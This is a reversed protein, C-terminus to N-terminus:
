AASSSRPRISAPPSRFRPPRCPRRPSTPATFRCSPAPRSPLAWCPRAFVNLTGNQTLLPLPTPRSRHRRDARHRGPFGRGHRPRRYHDARFTNRPTWTGAYIGSGASDGASLALPPDGNSFTAVVQGSAVPQGCDDVLLVALPTPWSTPQAFNNALGTQTPVLQSPACTAKPRQLSPVAGAEIILTVNVSRVAAGSLAYSVNGRYVGAKLGTLSVSVSSLAPSPPRLPVPRPCVALWASDSSAQYTVPAPRVPLVQVTQPPLAGTRECIFVFVPRSPIPSCRLPRRLQREAGRPLEAAFRHRRGLRDSDTGYYAQAALTAATANISFSVSGPAASTSTGSPTNLTLWNAGPLLTATWNM